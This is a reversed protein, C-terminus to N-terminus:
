DRREDKQSHNPQHFLLAILPVLSILIVAYFVAQDLYKAQELSM